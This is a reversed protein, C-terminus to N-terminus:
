VATGELFRLTTGNSIVVWKDGAGDSLVFPRWLWRPDTAAPRDATTFVPLPRSWALEIENEIDQALKQVLKRAWPPADPPLDIM